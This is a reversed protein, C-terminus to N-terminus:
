QDKMLLKKASKRIWSSLKNKSKGGKKEERKGISIVAPQKSTFSRKKKTENGALYSSDSGRAAHEASATTETSESSAEEKEHVVAPCLGVDKAKVLRLYPKQSPVDCTHVGPYYEDATEKTVSPLLFVSGQYADAAHNTAKDTSMKHPHNYPWDAPTAVAKDYSLQLARICRLIENMNRGVFAPYELRLMLRNEPSIFYVARIALEMKTTNAFPDANSDLMGYTASIYRDTDAIIPYDITIPDEDSHFEAHHAIVDDAWKLHNETTDVSLAAVLCDMAQLEHFKTAVSALETTCVPAFDTPHSFLIAWKDKKWEHFNMPGQTTDADFNPCENGLRLVTSSTDVSSLVQHPYPETCVIAFGM